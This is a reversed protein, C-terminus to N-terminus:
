CWASYLGDRRDIYVRKGYVESLLSEDLIRDKPGDAVIHGDKMVVVRSVEEIVEALEHTVMVITKGERAYLSITQRFDARSPFDLANAAEDLLMIPPDNVASRALLAKAKEGSSLTNVCKDKLRSLGVKEIAALAKAEDEATPTIHFDLGIASYLASLVIEYVTYTTETVMSESQSVHGVKLRLESVPWRSRSFLSYSYEDLALPHVKKCLVGVLTSKGAGNPGIIATNEGENLTFSVDELIYKGGRRVSAHGLSLIPTPM